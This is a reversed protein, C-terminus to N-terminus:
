SGYSALVYDALQYYNQVGPTDPLLDLTPRAEAASKNFATSRKAEADLTSIGCVFERADAIDIYHAGAAISIRQRNRLQAFSM